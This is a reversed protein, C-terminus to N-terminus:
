RRALHIGALMCRVSGGAMEITPVPLAVIQASHEIARRERRRNPSFMPFLAVHGGPHTSFWNNPFVAEPTDRAGDDDFWHVRVGHAQLTAAAQTSEDFAAAAIAKAPHDSGNRQFANDAATQPNPHFHHPRVM